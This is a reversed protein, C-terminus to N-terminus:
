QNLKLPVFFKENNDETIFGGINYVDNLLKVNIVEEAAGSKIIEGKKM